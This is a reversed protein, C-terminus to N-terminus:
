NIKKMSKPKYFSAWESISYLPIRIFDANKKYNLLSTLMIIDPHYKDCYIKMSKSTVAAGANVELPFVEGMYSMLFDLEGRNEHSWYYLAPSAGELHRSAQSAILEQAVFNETMAGKFQSFLANKTLVVQPSLESACGLLGVDLMFLKYANQEAHAKLPLKPAKVRSSQCVMGVNKLWQMARDYERARADKRIASYQFKKNEKALLEPIAQWVGMIKMVENAEAHKAFDATYGDLIHRQVERVLLLDNNHEIYAKVAEPMGGVIFYQKLLDVLLQHIPEAIPAPVNMGVIMERLNDRGVATLFEFFSMPKLDLFDVKGVPFSQQRSLKVRLLSGAAIVPTEPLDECFYKLSNLAEPCEQVEDFILLTNSVDLPQNLFLNLDRLIRRPDLDQQFFDAFNPQIDFNIYIYKGPYEREAFAKLLYTKGVQRAGRLVLPKRRNSERWALLKSYLARKM